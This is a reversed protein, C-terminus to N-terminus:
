YSQDGWVRLFFTVFTGLEDCGAPTAWNTSNWGELSATSPEFGKEREFSVSLLGILVSSLFRSKMPTAVWVFLCLHSLTCQKPGQETHGRLLHHPVFWWYFGSHFVTENIPFCTGLCALISQLCDTTLEIRMKEVFSFLPLYYYERRNAWNTLADAYLRPDCTRTRYQRPLISFATFPETFTTVQCDTSNCIVRNTFNPRVLIRPRLYSTGKVSKLQDRPQITM